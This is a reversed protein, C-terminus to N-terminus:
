NKSPRLMAPKNWGGKTMGEIDGSDRSELLMLSGMFASDIMDIEHVIKAELSSPLMPSGYEMKGHHSALIHILHTRTLEFREQPYEQTDSGSAIFEDYWDSAMNYVLIPTKVIHNMLVGELTKRFAPTSADYEFIKGFDHLIIGSLVLDRSFHEEGYLSQYHKIVRSALSAMSFTHELLGNYWNHHNSTAAPSTCFSTKHQNLLTGVTYRLMPDEFSNVLATLSSFMSDADFRSKKAFESIHKDSPEISDLILQMNGNYTGGKGSVKIVTGEALISDYKEANYSWKMALISVQDHQLTIEAYPKGDKTQKVSKKVVLAHVNSFLQNPRIEALEM